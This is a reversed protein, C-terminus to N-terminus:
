KRLFWFVTGIFGAIIFWFCVWLRKTDNFLTKIREAHVACNMKDEIKQLREKHAKMRIDFLKVLEDFKMNFYKSEEDNM